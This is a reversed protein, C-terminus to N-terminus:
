GIRRRSCILYSRFPAVESMGRARQDPRLTGRVREIGRAEFFVGDPAGGLEKLGLKDAYFSRARQLDVAPVNAVVPASGLM